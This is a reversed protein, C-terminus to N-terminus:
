REIRIDKDILRLIEKKTLGTLKITLAMLSEFTYKKSTM